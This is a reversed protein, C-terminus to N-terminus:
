LELMGNPLRFWILSLPENWALIMEDSLPILCERGSPIIKVVAMEQQPYAQVDIILAVEGSNFDNALFGKLFDYHLKEGGGNHKLIYKSELFLPRGAIRIAEDPLDIGEFKITSRNDLALADVHFPVKYGDIEVFLFASKLAYEWYPEEIHVKVEGLIGTARKTYGIQSLELAM